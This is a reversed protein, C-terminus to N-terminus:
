LSLIDKNIKVDTRLKKLAIHVPKNPSLSQEIRYYAKDGVLKVYGRISKEFSPIQVDSLTIQAVRDIEIDKNVDCGKIWKKVPPVIRDRSDSFLYHLRDAAM